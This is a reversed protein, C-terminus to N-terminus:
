EDLRAVNSVVRRGCLRDTIEIFVATPVPARAAIPAYMTDSLERPADLACYGYIRSNGPVVFIDVWTRSAQRNLGCAPLEPSRVFLSEPFDSWNSVGLRYNDVGDLSQHGLVRLRPVPLATRCAETTAATSSTPSRESTESTEWVETCAPLCVLSMLSLLLVRRSHHM